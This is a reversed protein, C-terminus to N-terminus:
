GAHAGATAGLWWASMDLEVTEFPEARVAQPGVHVGTM